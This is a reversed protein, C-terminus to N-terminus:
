KFIQFFLATVLFGILAGTIVEGLSHIKARLRSQAVLAALLFMAGLVFPNSYTFLVATWISFAVASHGSIIGGRFPTGRRFFAKGAITFFIVVLLAIFTIHWSAHRIHMATAQIPWSWYKSFIFFGVILANSALVLVFGASVDKIIRVRPRSSPEVLDVMEEVVTNIMEATLVLSIITCLIIWELRSVGIFIAILLVLFGLMFHVRMNRENKIVYIVGEAANNLSQVFTRRQRM